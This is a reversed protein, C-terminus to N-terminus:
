EHTILARVSAITEDWAEQILSVVRKDGEGMNADSFWSNNKEKIRDRYGRGRECECAQWFAVDLRMEDAHISQGVLQVKRVMKDFGAEAARLCQRILDFADAMEDDQLLNEAVEKLAILKPQILQTAVRRAGHSLQHSYDLNPWEGARVISAAISRPHANGIAALLSDQVHRTPRENLKTNTTLWVELRRAAARMIEAAQEREYNALLAHADAIIQRVSNRHYERVASIRDRIFRRLTDPDDEASNFFFTPLDKLGLPQLKLEVEEGKVIYGEEATAVPFGNDKVNLADGPRPLVLIGVHSGLTRVGGEQARKLLGRIQVQPAENFVSCLVVISHPDDFHQELDAREADDIGQTDILTVSLADDGLISSPLVLEIRKPLTFEPHRGNNVLEFKEQLWELPSRGTTDVHWLDRRDRKHLEMRDLLEICLAKVEPFAEALTREDDFGPVITGDPKKETRRKKLGAMNRLARAVERSIGTSSGDNDPDDAALASRGTNLLVNAYDTVHQRLEDEPCPEIILGYGPGRRLHVECITIGGSGTELVAKPMGKLTPLELREARCIATSKGAAITGIFAVRYRKEAVRAAATLLEEKYRVLRREFFQKVDPSEALEHIKQAAQEAEWLLDADVDSLSPEPLIVWQRALQNQVKLADPSGIGNLIGVLEEDSLAREGTEVRSLVAASWEIRRALENQKLGAQERLVALHKGIEIQRSMM